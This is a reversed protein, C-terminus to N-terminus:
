YVFCIVAKTRKNNDFLKKDVSICILEICFISKLCFISLYYIIKDCASHDDWIINNICRAINEWLLVTQRTSDSVPVSLIRCKKEYCSWVVLLITLIRRLVLRHMDLWGINVKVNSALHEFINNFFYILFDYQAYCIAAIWFM